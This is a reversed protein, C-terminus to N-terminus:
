ATLKRGLRDFRAYLLEPDEHAAARGQSWWEEAQAKAQDLTELIKENLFAEKAYAVALLNLLRGTGFDFAVTDDHQVTGKGVFVCTLNLEIPGDEMVFNHTGIGPNDERLIFEGPDYVPPVQYGEVNLGKDDILTDLILYAYRAAGTDTM